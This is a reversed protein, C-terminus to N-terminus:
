FVFRELWKKIRNTELSTNVVEGTEASVETARKFKLKFGLINREEEQELKYVPDGSENTTLEPATQGDGVVIGRRRMNEVAQDPLVSVVKTTGDPRTVILENNENVSIPLHTETKIKNKIIELKEDRSEQRELRDTQRDEVGQKRRLELTDEGSEDEIHLSEGDKLEIEKKIVRGDKDKLEQKLKFSEKTNEIKLESKVQNIENTKKRAEIQRELNKKAAERQQEGRKKDSENLNKVEEDEDELEISDDNTDDEGLISGDIEVLTGSRDLLYDAQALPAFISAFVLMAVGTVLFSKTM